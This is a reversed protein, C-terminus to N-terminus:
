DSTNKLTENFEFNLKKIDFSNLYGLQRQYREKIDYSGVNHHEQIKLNLFGREKRLEERNPARYNGSEEDIESHTDCLTGLGDMDDYAEDDHMLKTGCVVCTGIEDYWAKFEKVEEDTIKGSEYLTILLNM